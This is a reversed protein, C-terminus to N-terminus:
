CHSSTIKLRGASGHMKGLSLMIACNFNQNCRCVCIGGDSHCRWKESKLSRIMTQGEEIKCTTAQCVPPLSKTLAPTPAITLVTSEVVTIEGDRPGQNNADQGQFIDSILSRNIILICISLFLQRVGSFIDVPLTFCNTSEDFNCKGSGEGGGAVAIVKVVGSNIITEITSDGGLNGGRPTRKSGDQVACGVTYRVTTGPAVTFTIDTFGGQYPVATNASSGSAGWLQAKLETRAKYAVQQRRHTCKFTRLRAASTNLVLLSIVGLLLKM